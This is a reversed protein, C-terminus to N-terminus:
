ANLIDQTKAHALFAVWDRQQLAMGRTAFMRSGFKRLVERDTNGSQQWLTVCQHALSWYAYTHEGLAQPRYGLNHLLFDAEGAATMQEIQDLTLVWPGNNSEAEPVTLPLNFRTDDRQHIQWETMPQTLGCWQEPALNDPLHALVRCDAFRLCHVAGSDDFIYIFQQLHTVLEQATLATRILSIHLSPKLANWLAQVQSFEQTAEVAAADIIVPGILAAEKDAYLPYLWEPHSQPYYTKMGGIMAADLLVFLTPTTM